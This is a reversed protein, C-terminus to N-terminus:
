WVYAAFAEAQLALQQFCAKTRNAKIAAFWGGCQPFTEQRRGGIEERKGRKICLRLEEVEAGVVKRRSAAKAVGRMGELCEGSTTESAVAIGSLSNPLKDWRM